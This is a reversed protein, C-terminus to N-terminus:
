ATFVFRGGMLVMPQAGSVLMNQEASIRLAFEIVVTGLNVIGVSQQNVHVVAFHEPM